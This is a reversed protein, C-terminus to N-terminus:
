QMVLETPPRSTLITNTKRQETLQDQALQNGREQASIQPRFLGTNLAFNAGFGGVSDAAGPFGFGGGGRSGSDTGPGGFMSDDDPTRTGLDMLAQLQNLRRELFALEGPQGTQLADFLGGAAGEGLGKMLGVWAGIPGGKTLGKLVESQVRAALKMAGLMGQLLAKMIIEKISEGLKIFAIRGAITIAEFARDWDGKSGFYFALVGARGLVELLEGLTGAMGAIAGKFDIASIAAIAFPAALAGAVMAIAALLGVIPLMALVGAGIGAAIIASVVAMASSILSTTALFLIGFGVLAFGFATLAIGAAGLALMSGLVKKGVNKIKTMAALAKSVVKAVTIGFQELEEGVQRQFTKFAAFAAKTMAQFGFRERFAAGVRGKEQMQKQLLQIRLLMKASNSLQNFVLGQTEAYEQLDKEMVNIGFRKLEQAEGGLAQIIKLIGEEDSMGKGFSAFDIGLAYLSKALEDIEEASKGAKDLGSIVGRLQLLGEIVDTLNRRMRRSYDEAFDLAGQTGEGWSERLSAVVQRHRDAEAISTGIFAGVGVSAVTLRRGMRLAANGVHIAAQGVAQGFSNVQTQAVRLKRGFTRFKDATTEVNQSLSRMGAGTANVSVTIPGTSQATERFADQLQDLADVIQDVKDTVKDVLVAEYAAGARVAGGAGGSSM